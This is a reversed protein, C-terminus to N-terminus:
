HGLKLSGNEFKNSIKDLCVNQGLKMIIPSFIHSRSRVCALPKCRVVSVVSDCYSVRLVEHEPSCFFFVSSLNRAIIELLLIGSHDAVQQLM